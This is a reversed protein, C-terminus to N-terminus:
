GYYEGRDFGGQSSFSRSQGYSQKSMYPWSMSDDIELPQFNLYRALFETRQQKFISQSMDSLERGSRPNLRLALLIVFMTDFKPPFPNEDTLAKSTIQVWDGLDARYMWEEAMGDTDLVLSPAGAITRGNGNLTVPASALRGFPDIIAYRAGDQPRLTLDISIPDENVAILRSNIPPHHLWRRSAIPAVPINPDRGFDGLPWNQLLEGADSGYIGNLIGNYLRLAETNQNDSPAAALPIINSERYGDLIISSILTM